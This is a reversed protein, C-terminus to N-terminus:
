ILSKEKEYLDEIESEEQMVTPEIFGGSRDTETVLQIEEDPFSDSNEEETTEWVDETKQM